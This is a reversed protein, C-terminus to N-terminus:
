RNKAVHLRHLSSSFILSGLLSEGFLYNDHMMYDAFSEETNSEAPTQSQYLSLLASLRHCTCARFVLLVSMPLCRPNCSVSITM